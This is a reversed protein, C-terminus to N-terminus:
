LFHVMTQSGAAARSRAPRFRNQYGPIAFFAGAGALAPLMWIADSRRLHWPSAWIAKQDGAFREILDVGRAATGSASEEPVNWTGMEPAPQSLDSMVASPADVQAVSNVALNPVFLTLMMSVGAIQACRRV